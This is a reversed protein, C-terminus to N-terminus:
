AFALVETPLATTQARQILTHLRPQGIGLNFQVGMAGTYADAGVGNSGAKMRLQNGDLDYVGFPMEELNFLDEMRTFYTRDEDMDKCVNITLNGYGFTTFSGDFNKESGTFRKLNQGLRLMNAEQCVPMWSAVGSQPGLVDGRIQLFAVAQNFDSVTQSNGALDVVSSRLEGYTGRSLGQFFATDNNILYAFGRPFNLYGGQPVIFDGAGTTTADAMGNSFTGTFTTNTKATVRVTGRVVGTAAVIVDYNEGIEIHTAGKTSGYTAAAATACTITSGAGSVAIARSGQGNGFMNREIDKQLAAAVDALYDSMGEIQSYESGANFNRIVRGSLDYALSIALPYVYMDDLRPNGPANFSGGEQHATIGTPRRFKSPIREGKGNVFDKKGRKAVANYATLQTEYQTRLDGVIQNLAPAITPIQMQAM